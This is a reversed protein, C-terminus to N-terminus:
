WFYGSKIETKQGQNDILYEHCIVKEQRLQNVEAATIETDTSLLLVQHSAHPFYREVLNHRHSSDLRGLPTDIAVPLSRGSAKALGWLLSIALLQKEGASLRHKPLPEGDHDYLKLAFTDSALEVRHVLRSKHLLYLFSQGIQTELQNLKHRKLRDGFLTLVNQVQHASNLFHEQQQRELLNDTYTQLSQTALEVQRTTQEYARNADEYDRGLTAAQEQAMELRNVLTQYIEPSPASALLRDTEDIETQCAEYQSLLQQAIQQQLSLGTPLLAQLQALTATSANLWPSNALASLQAQETHLFRQWAQHQETTLQWTNILGQFRDQQAQLQERAIATQHTTQEQHAQIKVRELLPSILTLPLAQSALQRLEGLLRDAEAALRDQTQRLQTQQASLEGGRVLFEERAQRLTEQARDWQNKLNAKRQAALDQAEQATKLQDELQTLTQADSSQDRTLTKRKRAILIDLDQKLTNTLELGLLTRIAQVIEPTPAEQEALEKVQEGDFLFLNSIGLPLLKEIYEDWTQTLSPDLYSGELIELTDRNNKVTVDWSRRIRYQRPRGDLVEEITLEVVTKDQSHRHCCQRLFEGYSLNGRTSCKARQGYLALRLADMLTTKGGGNMGGFLIIPQHETSRLDIAQAERYPGFNQLHLELFQM